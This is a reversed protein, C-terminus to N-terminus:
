HCRCSPPPQRSSRRLAGLKRRLTSEQQFTNTPCRPSAEMFARRMKAIGKVRRYCEVGDRHAHRQTKHSEYRRTLRSPLASQRARPCYFRGGNDCKTSTPSRRPSRFLRTPRMDRTIATDTATSDLGLNSHLTTRHDSRFERGYSGVLILRYDGLDHHPIGARAHEQREAGLARFGRRTSRACCASGQDNDGVARTHKPKMTHARALSLTDRVVNPQGREPHRVVLPVAEFLHTPHKARRSRDGAEDGTREMETKLHERKHAGGSREARVPACSGIDFSAETRAAM